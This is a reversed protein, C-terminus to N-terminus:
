VQSNETSLLLSLGEREVDVVSTSQIEPKQIMITVESYTVKQSPAIYQVEKDHILPTTLNRSFGTKCWRTQKVKDLIHYELIVHHFVSLVFIM